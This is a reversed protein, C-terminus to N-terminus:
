VSIYIQDLVGQVIRRSSSDGTCTSLTVIRESGTFETRECQIESNELCSDIFSIFDGESFFTRYPDGSSKVVSSSFIEYQYIFDRTFIWFYHNKDYAAQETFEKLRGFMSLNKMNHGYIISNQDGFYRSNGCNLFICGAINEEGQFTRHLYYENDTTQTVPYSIDVAGVRIWGVLDPNIASLKEFDIPNEMSPLSVRVGNEVAESREALELATKRLDPRELEELNRLVATKEQPASESQGSSLESGSSNVKEKDDEPSIRVYADTLGGYEKEGEKYALYYGALKWLCFAFIGIALVLLLVIWFNGRKEDERWDAEEDYRSRSRRGRDDRYGSM